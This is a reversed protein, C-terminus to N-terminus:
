NSKLTRWGIWDAIVVQGTSEECCLQTETEETVVYPGGWPRFEGKDDRLQLEERIVGIDDGSSSHHVHFDLVTVPLTGRGNKLHFRDNLQRKASHALGEALAYASSFPYHPKVNAVGATVGLRKIGYVREANESM